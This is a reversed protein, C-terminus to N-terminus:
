FDTGVWSVSIQTRQVLDCYDLANKYNSLAQVYKELEALYRRMERSYRDMEKKRMQQDAWKKKPRM